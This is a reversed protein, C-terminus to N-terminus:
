SASVSGGAPCISDEVRQTCDYKVKYGKLRIPHLLKRVMSKHQRATLNYTTMSISYSYIDLSCDLKFRDKIEQFAESRTTIYTKTETRVEIGHKRLLKVSRSDIQENDSADYYTTDIEECKIEIGFKRFCEEIESEEEFRIATTRRVEKNNDNSM